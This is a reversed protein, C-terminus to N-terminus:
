GASPAGSDSTPPAEPTEGSADEGPLASPASTGASLDGDAPPAFQAPEASLACSSAWTGTGIVPTGVGGAAAICAVPGTGLDCQFWEKYVPAQPAHAAYCSRGLFYTGGPVDGHQVAGQLYDSVVAYARGGLSPNYVVHFLGLETDSTTQVYDKLSAVRVRSTGAATKFGRFAVTAAPWQAPDPTFGGNPGALLYTAAKAVPGAAFGGYLYGQGPYAPAAARLHELNVWIQGVGRRAAAGRRMWGALVVQYASDAADPARAQLVFEGGRVARGVWLRFSASAGDPCPSADVTCSEAPGYWKGPGAWTGGGAAVTEAVRDFASRIASNVAAVKEQAAALDDGTVPWAEAQVAALEAGAGPQRAASDASGGTVELTLAAADPLSDSSATTDQRPGCAALGAALTLGLWPAAKMSISM